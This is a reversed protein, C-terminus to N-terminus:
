DSLFNPFIAKLNYALLGAKPSDPTIPIILSGKQRTNWVPIELDSLHNPYNSGDVIIQTEPDLFEKNIESNHQVLLYNAAIQIEEQNESLWALHKGEFYISNESKFYTLNQIEELDRIRYKKIKEKIAYPKILYKELNVSDSIDMLYVDLQQGNRIGIVSNRTQHFVIMEKKHNFKEQQNMQQVQFCVILIFATLVNRFSPKKWIIGILILMCLILISELPTFSINEFVLSDYSSLWRIYSNCAEIIRNFLSIWWEFNWNLELFILALMGGAMMFYSAIIMLVNGALFLGSTQNFYLVTFPMTGLQASVSTGIFAIINKSLKSKPKFLKQYIPHLYVIFFVAAFSLQFGVDFLFNPNIWLLIFASVALTHYINPKRRFSVTIYYVSIMVASRLVPPQFGVFVVFSWILALSLLIRILKGNKLYVLPYLLIMFISYVMMVHLGSISLIHVVGTKRYNDETEPDMETRDGLLMAGILDASSKTYGNEILKRHTERKYVSTKFAISNGSKIKEYVTDSFITYHIKQRRLWKSYDFQHPNLPKQTPLIEAQIQIEDNPYLEQNEKRWYLLIYNNARLSDIQLIRAKYKRFKASPRYIEEIKLKLNSDKGLKQSPIPEYSNFNSTLMWGCVFFVMSIWFFDYRKLRFFTLFIVFFVFILLKAGNAIDSLPLSEAFLIGLMLGALPGIFPQNKM